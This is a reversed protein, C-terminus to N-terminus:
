RVEKTKDLKYMYHKIKLYSERDLQWVKRGANKGYGYMRLNPDLVYENFEDLADDERMGYSELIFGDDTTITIHEEEADGANVKSCTVFGSTKIYYLYQDNAWEIYTVQRQRYLTHITKM